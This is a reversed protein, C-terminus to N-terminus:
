KDKQKQFNKFGKGRLFFTVQGKSSRITYVVLFASYKTKCKAPKAREELYPKTKKGKPNQGGEGGVGGGLHNAGTDLGHAFSL